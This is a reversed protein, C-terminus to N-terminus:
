VSGRVAPPAGGAGGHNTTINWHRCYRTWLVPETSIMKEGELFRRGLVFALRFSQEADLAIITEAAPWPRRLCKDIYLVAYMAGGPSDLIVQEDYAIEEATRQPGFAVAILQREFAQRALTLPLRGIYLNTEDHPAKLESRALREVDQSLHHAKEDAEEASAAHGRADQRNGDHYADSYKQRFRTSEQRAADIKALLPTRLRKFREFRPSDDNPDDDFVSYQLAIAVAIVLTLEMM